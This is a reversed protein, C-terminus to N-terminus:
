MAELDLMQRKGKEDMQITMRLITGPMVRRFFNIM